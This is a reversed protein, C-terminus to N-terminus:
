CVNSHTDQHHLVNHKVIMWIHIYYSLYVTLQLLVYRGGGFYAETQLFVEVYGSDDLCETSWLPISVISKKVAWMVYQWHLASLECQDYMIFNAKGIRSYCNVCLQLSSCSTINVCAFNYRIKHRLYKRNCLSVAVWVSMTVKNIPRM